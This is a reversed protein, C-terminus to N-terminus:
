FGSQTRRKSCGEGNADVGYTRAIDAQTEGNRLATTEADFSRDSIQLPQKSSPLVSAMSHEM